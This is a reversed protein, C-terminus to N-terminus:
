DRNSHNNLHVCNKHELNFVDNAILSVAGMVSAKKGFTAPVIQIDKAIKKLSRASVTKRVKDFLIDRARSIPESRRV